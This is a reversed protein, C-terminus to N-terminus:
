AETGGKENPLSQVFDLWGPIRGDLPVSVMEYILTKKETETVLRAGRMNAGPFAM